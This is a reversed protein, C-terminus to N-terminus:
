SNRKRIFQKPTIRAIQKCERTMHAQDAFGHELALDVLAANPQMKLQELTLKVRLIRQYQKPTIGLWKQFMRERQRQSCTQPQQQIIHGVDPSECKVILEQIWRYLISIRAAPTHKSQLAEYITSATSAFPHEDEIRIMQGLREGFLQYGVAPHFRIGAMVAGPCFSIKYAQTSVPQLLIGPSHLEGDIEVEKQLIFMVGSGVDGLLHRTVSQEVDPSASASWIGQIHGALLGKPKFIDLDLNL